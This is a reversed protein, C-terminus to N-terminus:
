WRGNEFTVIYFSKYSGIPSGDKRFRTFQVRFHVKDTGADVVEVYDWATRAWDKAEGDRKWVTSGFDEPREMITVTGSHFRVHPFHFWKTRMADADEANFASMFGDMVERAGAVAAATKKDM